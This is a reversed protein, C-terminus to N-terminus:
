RASGEVAVGLRCPQDALGIVASRCDDSAVPGGVGGRQELFHDAQPRLLSLDPLSPLAELTLEYGKNPAIYGFLTALRRGKLGFRERFAQGETPAALPAPIGTPVIKVQDPKAGRAILEERRGADELVRLLGARISEVSFPDVLEAAGGAVDILPEINSTVVM